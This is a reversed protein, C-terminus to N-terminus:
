ISNISKELEKLKEFENKEREFAAKEDEFTKRNFDLQKQSSEINLRKEELKQNQDEFIKDKNLILEKIEKEKLELTEKLKNLTNERFDAVEKRHQFIRDMEAYMENMQKVM